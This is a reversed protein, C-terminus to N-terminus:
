TMREKQHTFTSWQYPRYSFPLCRLKASKISPSLYERHCVNAKLEICSVRIFVKDFPITKLVKLESGEVDLSFYDVTTVNIATLLSFLPMCQVKVYEAKTSIKHM